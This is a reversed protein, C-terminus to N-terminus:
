SFYDLVTHSHLTVVSLLLVVEKGLLVRVFPDRCRSGVSGRGLGVVKIEGPLISWTKGGETLGTGSLVERTRRPGRRM